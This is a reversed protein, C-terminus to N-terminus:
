DYTLKQNINTINQINKSIKNINISTKNIITERKYLIPLIDKYLQIFANIYLEILKIKNDNSLKNIKHIKKRTIKTNIPSNIININKQLQQIDKIICNCQKNIKITITKNISNDLFYIANLLHTIPFQLIMYLRKIYVYPCFGTYQFKKSQKIFVDIVKNFDTAWKNNNKIKWKIKPIQKDLKVTFPPFNFFMIISSTNTQNKLDISVWKNILDNFNNFNSYKSSLNNNIEIYSNRINIFLEITKEIHTKYSMFLYKVSAKFTGYIDLDNIIANTINKDSAYYLKKLIILINNENITYLPLPLIDNAVNVLNNYYKKDLHKGNYYIEKFSDWEIIKNKVYNKTANGILIKNELQKNKTTIGGFISLINLEDPIKLDIGGLINKINQNLQSTNHNNM